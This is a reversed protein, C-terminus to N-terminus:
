WTHEIEYMSFKNDSSIIPIKEAIAQSIILRDFPDRHHFPLVSVELIHDFEIGLIGINNGLTEEILNALSFPLMLKDISIKVAIEWFSVLSVLITNEQNKLISKADSSLKDTQGLSWILVQTDILYKM